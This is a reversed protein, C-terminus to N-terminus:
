QESLMVFARWIGFHGLLHLVASRFQSGNATDASCWNLDHMASLLREM